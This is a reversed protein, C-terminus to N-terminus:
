TRFSGRVWRRTACQHEIPAELQAETRALDLMDVKDDGREPEIKKVTRYGSQAKYDVALKLTM